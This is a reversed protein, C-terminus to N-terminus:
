YREYIISTEPRLFSSQLITNHIPKQSNPPITTVPLLRIATPKPRTVIDEFQGNGVAGGLQDVIYEVDSQYELEVQFEDWAACGEEDVQKELKEANQAKGQWM